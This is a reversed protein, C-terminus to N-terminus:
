NIEMKFESPLIVILMTKLHEDPLDSGCKHHQDEWKGLTCKLNAVNICPPFSQVLRRGAMQQLLDCRQFEIFIQRWLGFGNYRDQRVMRVRREYMSTGVWLSLSSIGSTPPYLGDQLAM